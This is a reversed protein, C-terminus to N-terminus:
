LKLEMQELTTSQGHNACSLASKNGALTDEMCLENFRCECEVNKELLWALCMGNKLHQGLPHHCSVCESFIEQEPDRKARGYIESWNITTM